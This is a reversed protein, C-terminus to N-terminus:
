YPHSTVVQDQLIDKTVTARLNKPLAREPYKQITRLVWEQGSTDRLRLSRTQLGGGQQLITLGGKEKSLYFVKLTVPAAWLKRYSEGFLVRHLGSVNDYNPAIAVQISDGAPTQAQVTVTALLALSTFLKYFSM